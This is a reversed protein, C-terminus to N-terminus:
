TRRSADIIERAADMVSAAWAERQAADLVRVVVVIGHAPSPCGIANQSAKVQRDSKYLVGELADRVLSVMRDEDGEVADPWWGAVDVRFIPRHDTVPPWVVGARQAHARAQLALGAVLRQYEEAEKGRKDFRKGKSGGVGGTHQWTRPRGPVVFAIASV